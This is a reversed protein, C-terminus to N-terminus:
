FSYVIQASAINANSRYSGKLGGRLIEESLSFSTKDIPTKKIFLHAFALDFHFSSNWQYGAGLSFWFRDNDPVRPSRLESNFVPTEDYAIGTRLKWRCFGSYTTGLAYRLTNQWKYQTVNDPQLPNDFRFVLRQVSSWRTWTIDGMVAWSDNLEHYASFIALDPLTVDAKVQTDTAAAAKIAQFFPSLLGAQFPNEILPPLSSFHERGKVRLKIQSRWSVGLRTGCCPEYLLGVNAAVSWANGRLRVRGDQTTPQFGLSNLGAEILPTAPGQTMSNLWALTGYDVDNTLKTHSYMVRVGAGFSLKNDLKYALVPNFEVTLLSSLLAHYRGTWHDDYSTALGFPSTIALGAFLSDNLQHSYYFNGVPSDRGADTKKKGPIPQGGRPGPNPQVPAKLLAPTILSKKDHWDYTPLIGHLTGIAQRGKIRTIGAPNFYITSADEAIAAGGAYANGMSSASQEILGFGAADITSHCATAMALTLFLWKSITLNMANM